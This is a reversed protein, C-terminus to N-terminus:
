KTTWWDSRAPWAGEVREEVLRESGPQPTLTRADLQGVVNTLGSGHSSGFVWVRDRTIEIEGTALRVSAALTGREGDLVGVYGYDRAYYLGDGSTLAWGSNGEGRGPRRAAVQHRDLDVIVLDNGVRFPVFRPAEDRLPVFDHFRMGSRAHVRGSAPLELSWRAAGSAADLGALRVTTPLAEPGASESAAFIVEDRHTACALAWCARPCLTGGLDRSVIASTRTAQDVRVLEGAKTLVYTHRGLSCRTKSAAEPLPVDLAAGTRRDLIAVRAGALLLTEESLHYFAVEGVDPQARWLDRGSAPDLALAVNGSAATSVVLLQGRDLRLVRLADPTMGLPDARHWREHGDRLDLGVADDLTVVGDSASVVARGLGRYELVRAWAARGAGDVLSLRIRGAPDRQTVIARQADIPTLASISAKSWRARGQAVYAGLAATAALVGGLVLKWVPRM